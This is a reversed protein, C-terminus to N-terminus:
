WGKGNESAAWMVVDGRVRVPTGEPIFLITGKGVAIDNVAGCGSLCFAIVPGKTGPLSLKGREQTLDMRWVEFEDFEPRYLRLGPEVERGPMVPCDGQEYTLSGCLVNVDKFKPTLGARIVNDSTAMCEVIEGSLYAHPENAGLAIAEGSELCIYNLLYSSLVGIDLPYQEQLRLVLQERATLDRKTAQAEIREVLTRVVTSATDQDVTMLSTFLKKLVRKKESTNGEPVSLYRDVVDQGCCLALEPVNRLTGELESVSCFGCLAEFRSLAIAMEPKHNPDKYVDPRERHLREALDKSPHSQISLATNVSLVKLLFPLDGGLVDKLLVSDGNLLKVSSPGSSHTGMWLEAYPQSKDIFSDGGAEMLKAVESDDANRGWLYHKAVGRLEVLRPDDFPRDFLPRKAEVVFEEMNSTSRRSVEVSAM